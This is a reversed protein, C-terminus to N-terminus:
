PDTCKTSVVFIPTLSYFYKRMESHLLDTGMGSRGGFELVPTDICCEIDTCTDSLHCVSNPPLHPIAVSKNCEPILVCYNTRTLHTDYNITLKYM